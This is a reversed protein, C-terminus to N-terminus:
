EATVTTIATQFDGVTQQLNTMKTQLDTLKDQAKAAADPDGELEMLEVSLDLMESSAEAGAKIKAQEDAFEEPAELAALQEYYPKMKEVFEKTTSVMGEIDNPNLSSAYTQSETEITQYIETVKAKYDDASVKNGGCAVMSLSLILAAAAVSIKKLLNKKM